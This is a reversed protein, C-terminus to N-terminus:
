ADSERKRRPRNSTKAARAPSKGGEPLVGEGRTESAKQFEAVEVILPFGMRNNSGALEAIREDSVVLGDRPFKEGAQYRRNGDQLDAFAVAARYM